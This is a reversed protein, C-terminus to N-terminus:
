QHFVPANDEIFALQQARYTDQIVTATKNGGLQLITKLSAGYDAVVCKAAPLTSVATKNAYPSWTPRPAGKGDNPNLGTVFALWYDMITEALTPCTATLGACRGYAYPLDATHAIGAYAPAQPQPETFLYGYSRVGHAASARQLGRRQSDFSIDGVAAGFTLAREVTV